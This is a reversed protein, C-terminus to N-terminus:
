LHHIGRVTVEFEVRDVERARENFVSFPHVESIPSASYDFALDEALWVVIPRGDVIYYNATEDVLDRALSESITPRVFSPPSEPTPQSTLLDDCLIQPEPPEKTM